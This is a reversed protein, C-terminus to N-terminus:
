YKIIYYILLNIVIGVNNFLKVRKWCFNVKANKNDNIIWYKVYLSPIFSNTPPGVFQILLFSSILSPNLSSIKWTVINKM